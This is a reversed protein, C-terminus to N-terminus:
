KILAGGDVVFASGVVYSSAPSALFLAMNAIEEPEGMRKLPLAALFGEMMAAMAKEDVPGAMKAVGPTAIGGPAISNVLIGHPALELAMSKTLMEMGGKSADYHTLNGTPHYADISTINIIRGGNGQAIMQIAAAKALFTAGKLNINLTADWTKETLHLFPEFPFIGANNVLIDLRGFQKVVAEIVQPADDITAADDIIVIGEGGAKQVLDLTKKAANQDIDAIGVKAGAEALRLAIAQGIGNGAGTVLAVKGTLSFIEQISKM